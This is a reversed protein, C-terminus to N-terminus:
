FRSVHAFIPVFNKLEAFATESTVITLAQTPGSIDNPCGHFLFNMARKSLSFGIEAKRPEVAIREFIHYTPNRGTAAMPWLASVAREVATILGYAM